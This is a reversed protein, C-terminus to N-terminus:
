LKTHPYLEPHNKIKAQFVKGPSPADVMEFFLEQPVSSYSYTAGSSFQIQMEGNEWGAMALQSSNRVPQMIM